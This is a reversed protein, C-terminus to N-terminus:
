IIPTLESDSRNIEDESIQIMESGKAEGISTSTPKTYEFRATQQALSTETKAKWVITLAMLLGLAACVNKQTFLIAKMATFLQNTEPFGLRIGGLYQPHSSPFNMESYISSYVRAGIMEAFETLENTARSQSVRDGVIIIPNKAKTILDVTKEISEPDPMNLSSNQPSPYIDMEGTDDLSNASFAVFTPGTPPTKAEMFARRILSPIQEPHTVEESFKTFAAM